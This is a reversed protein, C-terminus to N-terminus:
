QSYLFVASTSIKHYNLKVTAINCIQLLTQALFIYQGETLASIDYKQKRLLFPLLMNIKHM